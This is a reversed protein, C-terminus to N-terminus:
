ALLPSPASRRRQRIVLLMPLLGALLLMAAGPEPVATVNLNLGTDALMALNLASIEGRVGRYFVVGNMLDPVLDLGLGAIDNGVHGYNGLTLPVPGGYVAMAQAGTFFLATGLPTAMPQVLADFTSLYGGAATGSAADLWGNFGLAHGFEHMLVSMADTQHGPVAASRSLPDPDFWLENQLYGDIGILFEIDPASGNPDIGTRLEHAAGESWLTSGNATSGVYGSTASRGSATDLSAFGISVTLDVAPTGAALHQLWSNGAAVTLRELDAYYPTYSGAPDAFIVQIRGTDAAAAGAVGVVGALLAQRLFPFFGLTSM